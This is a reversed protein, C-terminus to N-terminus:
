HVKGQGQKRLTGEKGRQDGKSDRRKAGRAERPAAEQKAGQKRAREKENDTRLREKVKGINGIEEKL